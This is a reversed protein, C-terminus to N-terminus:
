TARGQRKLLLGIGLFLGVLAYYGLTLPRMDQKNPALTWFLGTFPAALAMSVVLLRLRTAPAVAAVALPWLVFWPWVHGISTFMIAIWAALLLSVFREADPSKAHNCATVFVLAACAIGVAAAAWRGGVGLTELVAAPTLFEWSRMSAVADFAAPQKMLSYCVGVGAALSVAWTLVYRATITRNRWAHWADILILPATVFKTLTAAVWAPPGYSKSGATVACLWVAMPLVMVIDNHGEAMALHASMPLWGLMAWAWARRALGSRSAIRDIVWLMALWCGVLLLKHLLFEAAASRGALWAIGATTWGWLPGYTMKLEFAQLPLGALSESTFVQLYPNQGDYIMRGWAVSLWLDRTFMPMALLNLAAFVTPWWRLGRWADGCSALDTARMQYALLLWTGTLVMAPLLYALSRTLPDALFSRGTLYNRLSDSAMGTRRSIEDAM